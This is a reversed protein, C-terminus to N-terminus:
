RHGFHGTHFAVHHCQLIQEHEVLTTDIRVSFHHSAEGGGADTRFKVFLEQAGTNTQARIQEIFHHLDSIPIRATATRTQAAAMTAQNATELYKLLASTSLILCRKVPGDFLAFALVLPSDFSCCDTM